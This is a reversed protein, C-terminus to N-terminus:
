SKNRFHLLHFLHLGIPLKPAILQVLSFSSSPAILSSLNKELIMLKGTPKVINTPVLSATLGQDL